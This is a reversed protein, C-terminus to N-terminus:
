IELRRRVKGAANSGSMMPRDQPLDAQMNL